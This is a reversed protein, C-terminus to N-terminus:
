ISVKTCDKSYVVVVHDKAIKLNDVALPIREPIETAIRLIPQPLDNGGTLYVTSGLVAHLSRFTGKLKIKNADLDLMVKELDVLSYKRGDEYHYITHSNGQDDNGMIKEVVVLTSSAKHSSAGPKGDSQDPEAAIVLVPMCLLSVIIPTLRFFRKHTNM